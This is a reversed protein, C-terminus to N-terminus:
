PAHNEVLTSTTANINTGGNNLATNGRILSSTAIIGNTGNLTAANDTITCGTSARIGAASNLSVTCNSVVCGDDTEIGDSGNLRATCNRVISGNTTAVILTHIGDIGCGFATVSDAICATELLVGHGLCNAVNCDRVTSGFGVRIGDGGCDTVNLDEVRSNIAGGINVGHGPFGRVIGNKIIINSHGGAIKIGDIATDPDGVISFGNLDLTVHNANISIGDAAPPACGNCSALDSTLVYSGPQTITYPLAGITQINLSVRDTPAIPGPPPNLDGALTLSVLALLAAAAALIPRHM